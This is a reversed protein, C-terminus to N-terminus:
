QGGVKVLDQIDVEGGTRRQIQQALDRETETQLGRVKAAVQHPLDGVGDHAQIFTLLLM